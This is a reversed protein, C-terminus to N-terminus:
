AAERAVARSTYARAAHKPCYPGDPAPRACFLHGEWPAANNVAWRCEGRELEMLTVPWCRFATPAVSFPKPPSKKRRSRKPKPKPHTYTRARVGAQRLQRDRYIRGIVANRSLGKAEGIKRASFGEALMTMVEARDEESWPKTIM